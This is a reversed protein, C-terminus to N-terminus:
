FSTERIFTNGNSAANFEADCSNKETFPVYERFSISAFREKTRSAESRNEKKGNRRTISFSFVHFLGIYEDTSRSNKRLRENSQDVQM